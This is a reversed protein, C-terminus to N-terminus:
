TTEGCEPRGEAGYAVRLADGDARGRNTPRRAPRRTRGRDLLAAARRGRRSGCETCAGRPRPPWRLAEAAAGRQAPGGVGVMKALQDRSQGKAEPLTAQLLKGGQGGKQREKAEEKFRARLKEARTGVLARQSVDLYRDFDLLRIPGFSYSCDFDGGCEQGPCIVM